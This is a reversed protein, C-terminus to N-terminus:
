VPFSNGGRHFMRARRTLTIRGDLKTGEPLILKHDPSFLPQSLSAAIPDGIHADASSVTAIIRVTGPLDAERQQGIKTLNSEPVAVTGFDLPSNLVADFRTGDSVATSSLAVQEWLFDELWERKNPGRVFSM